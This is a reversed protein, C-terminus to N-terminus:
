CIRVDHMMLQATNLNPTGEWHVSVACGPYVDHGRGTHGTPLERGCYGLAFTRIGQDLGQVLIEGPALCPVVNWQFPTVQREASVVDLDVVM